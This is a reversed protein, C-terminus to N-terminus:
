LSTQEHSRAEDILRNLIEGYSMSQKELWEKNIKSITPTIRVGRSSLSGVPRGAGKRKGGKNSNM